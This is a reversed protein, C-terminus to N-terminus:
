KHEHEKVTCSSWNRRQTIRAREHREALVNLFKGADYLSSFCIGEICVEKEGCRRKIM